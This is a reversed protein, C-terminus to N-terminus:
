DTQNNQKHLSRQKDYEEWYKKISNLKILLEDDSEYYIFDVHCHGFSFSACNEDRYERVPTIVEAFYGTIKNEIIWYNFESWDDLPPEEPIDKGIFLASFEGDDIINTMEYMLNSQDIETSLIPRYVKEVAMWECIEQLTEM